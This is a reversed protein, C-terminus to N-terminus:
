IKGLLQGASGMSVGGEASYTAAPDNQATYAQLAANRQLALRILEGCTAHDARAQALLDRLPGGQEAPMQNIAAALADSGGPYAHLADMAAQVRQLEAELADIQHQELTQKLAMVTRSLDRVLAEVSSSM